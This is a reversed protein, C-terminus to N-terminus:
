SGRCGTKWTEMLNRITQMAKQWNGNLRLINDPETRM